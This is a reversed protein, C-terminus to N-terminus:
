KRMGVKYVCLWLNIGLYLGSAIGTEVRLFHLVSASLRSLATNSYRSVVFVKDSNKGQALSRPRREMQVREKTGKRECTRSNRSLIFVKVSPKSLYMSDPPNASTVVTSKELFIQLEETGGRGSFRFLM